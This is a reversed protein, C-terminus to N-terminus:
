LLLDKSIIMIINSISYLVLFSNNILEPVMCNFGVGLWIKLFMTSIFNYFSTTYFIVSSLDSKSINYLSFSFLFSKFHYRTSQLIIPYKLNSQQCIDACIYGHDKKRIKACNQNHLFITWTMYSTTMHIRHKM